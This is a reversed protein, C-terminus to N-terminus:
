PIVIKVAADPTKVIYIGAPLAITRSGRLARLQAFNKGTINYVAVDVAPGSNIIRLEYNTIRLQIGNEALDANGTIDPNPDPDGLDERLRIEITHDKEIPNLIYSGGRGDASPTFATEVGDILLLIDDATLTPDEPWFQLFLHDGDEITLEGASLNQLNIGPALVLDVTHYITPTPPVNVNLTLELPFEKFEPLKDGELWMNLNYSSGIGWNTPVTFTRKLVTGEGAEDDTLYRTEADDIYLGM